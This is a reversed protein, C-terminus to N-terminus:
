FQWLNINECKESQERCFHLFIQMLVVEVHLNKKFLVKDGFFRARKELRHLSVAWAGEFWADDGLFM